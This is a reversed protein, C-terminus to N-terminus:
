ALLLRFGGKQLASAALMPDYVIAQTVNEKCSSIRMGYDDDFLISLPLPMFSDHQFLHRVNKNHKPETEESAEEHQREM